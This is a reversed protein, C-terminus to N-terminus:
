VVKKVTIPSGLFGEHNMIVKLECIRRHGWIKLKAVYNNVEDEVMEVTDAEFIVAYEGRGDAGVTQGGIGSAGRDYFTIVAQIGM